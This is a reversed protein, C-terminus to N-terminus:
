SLHRQVWWFTVALLALAAAFFITAEIGQFLWFRDAPQFVTSILWGHAHTCQTFADGNRFGFGGSTPASTCTSFIRGIDVPHGGGDVWHGDSLVWALPTAARPADALVPDSLVSIPPRFHPRLLLEIPLRVALFGVLTVLMAVVTRRLLAGAAFGLALAFAVYALPVVGELDFGDPSLRGSFSRDFPGRWWTLLTMLVASALLSVGLVLGLKAALWRTRTISQTWILRHTGQELERAILPAGILVGALVPLVNLWTAATVLPGFEHQFATIGPSCTLDPHAVCASVGLRQYEAAMGQGSVYLLVGLLALTGAMIALESRHQRWAVRMM